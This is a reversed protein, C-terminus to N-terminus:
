RGQKRQFIEEGFIEPLGLIDLIEYVDESINTVTVRVGNKELERIVQAIGGIGTSDIFHLNGFDITVEKVEVLNVISNKLKDVTSIDLVGKLILVGKGNKKTNEIELLM